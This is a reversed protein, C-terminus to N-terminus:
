RGRQCIPSPIPDYTTLLWKAAPIYRVSGSNRARQRCSRRPGIQDHAPPVSASTTKAPAKQVTPMTAWERAPAPAMMTAVATNMARVVCARQARHTHPPIENIARTESVPNKVIKKKRSVCRNFRSGSRTRPGSNFKKLSGRM